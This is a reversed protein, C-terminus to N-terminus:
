RRGDDDEVEVVTGIAGTVRGRSDLCITTSCRVPVMKGGRAYRYEASFNRQEEIAANWEDFVAERDQFAVSNIWGNGICEQLSLGTLRQYGENAWVCLGHQDTEFHAKPSMSLLIRDVSRLHALSIEIRDVADRLSSGHNPKFQEAIELLVPIALETRKITRTFDIIAALLPKIGRRYIVTLASIVAAAAVIHSSWEPVYVHM